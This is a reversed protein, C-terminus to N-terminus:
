RRTPCTSASRSSRRRSWCTPRAASSASWSRRSKRAGMRGHVLDVRLDPFVATRLREAEEVATTLPAAFARKPREDNEDDPEAVDIAPAVVYPRAHGLEVNKRVFDYVEHKRSDRIVFTRIPTRGPPLEDIISVDMDAYKTQALTRPIPTATMALTHPAVSKERLTKRQNVGFRHQEDIVM